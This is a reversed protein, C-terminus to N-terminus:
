NKELWRSIIDVRSAFVPYDLTAAVDGERNTNMTIGSTFMIVPIGRGLFVKHDSIRKYFLDTFSRSGYYDFYLHMSGAANKLGVRHSSAGLCILYDKWYRDPPALTCGLIDLNVVMRLHVSSLSEKLASAGSMNANHADVFSFILDERGRLSEALSLLAAVGSANSDAGPYFRDGIVGMGDYHSMLLIASRIGRGSSATINHGIRGNETTFAEVKISYGLGQLRSIIYFAAESAGSTGTKRGACLSDSLFEVDTLLRAQLTSDKGAPSASLVRAAIFFICISLFIKASRASRPM